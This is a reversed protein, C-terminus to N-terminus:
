AAGKLIEGPLAQPKWNDIRPQYYAIDSEIQRLESEFQYVRNRHARDYGEEGDNVLEAAKGWTKQVMIAPRDNVFAIKAETTDTHHQRLVAVYEVMAKPSVEVPEYGVGFCNGSQFGYKLTYGHAVLKGNADMKVNKGCCGCTGTNDLTREETKRPTEAPKRGKQIMPKLTRFKDAMPRFKNVVALIRDAVANDADANNLAIHANVLKTTPFQVISYTLAEIAALELETRSEWKGSHTFEARVEYIAAELMRNAGYGTWDKFDVNYIVGAEICADLKANLEEFTMRPM